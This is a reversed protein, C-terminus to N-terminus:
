NPNKVTPGPLNWVNSTPDLTDLQPLLPGRVQGEGESLVALFGSTILVVVALLAAERNFMETEM